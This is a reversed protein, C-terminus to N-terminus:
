KRLTPIWISRSKLYGNLDPDESKNHLLDWGPCPFCPRLLFKKRLPCLWKKGQNKGPTFDKKGTFFKWKPLGLVFKQQKSFYFAFSFPGRRMKPSKGGLELKLKGGERKCNEKKEEGNGRGGKWKKAKGRKEQYILLFKGTLLRQPASQGGAGRRNRCQHFTWMSRSNQIQARMKPAGCICTWGQKCKFHLWPGKLNFGAKKM